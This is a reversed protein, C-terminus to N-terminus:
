LMANLLQALRANANPDVNRTGIKEFEVDGCKLCIVVTVTESGATVQLVHHPIFTCDLRDSMYTRRDAILSVLEAATEPTMAIRNRVPYGAVTERVAATVTEYDADIENAIHFVAVSHPREAVTCLRATAADLEPDPQQLDCGFAFFLVAALRRM